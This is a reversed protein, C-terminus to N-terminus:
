DSATTCVAQGTASSVACAGECDKCSLEQLQGEVCRRAWNGECRGLDSIGRCPDTGGAVCRYGATAPDWGCAEPCREGREESQECWIALTGYCRGIWGLTECASPSSASAEVRDRLWGDIADLREYSDSGTCTPSGRSLIGVVVVEGTDARVLAPGGSDGGCPARSLGSAIQIETGTVTAVPVVAFSIRGTHGAGDEGAGAITLADGASIRSASGWRLTPGDPLDSVRLLSVDLEPNSSVTGSSEATAGLTVPVVLGGLVLNASDPMSELCHSATVLWQRAVRVVTCFERPNLPEEHSSKELFGIAGQQSASLGLYSTESVGRILADRAVQVTCETKEPGCAVLIALAILEVRARMTSM